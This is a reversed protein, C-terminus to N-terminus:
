LLQGVESFRAPNAADIVFVIVNVVPFYQLWQKRIAPSGGVDWLTMTVQHYVVTEM